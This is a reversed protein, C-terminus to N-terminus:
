GPKGGGWLGGAARISLIRAALLSVTFAAVPWPSVLLADTWAFPLAPTLGDAGGFARVALVALAAVAAGAVGGVLAPPVTRGQAQGAVLADDAGRGVLLRLAARHAEVADGTMGVILGALTAALAAVAVWGISAVTAAAREAEARWLSHDDVTADLGAEALARNLTVASAPEQPDLRVTAFAPVPLDALADEGLWPRLLAEAAERDLARAEVVGDVGALVEAARAAATASTEGIAPRVQVTAEAGLQRLWGAAARHGAAATATALGGLVCMIAVILALRREAASRPPLLATM